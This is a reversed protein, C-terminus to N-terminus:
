AFSDLLMGVVLHWGNVLVFLLLKAPLSVLVPPVTVLGMGAIVSAVVLDIVLFPLYIQFGILFATKLESLLFAPALAQFPVQDYSTIGSSDAGSRELFLWVDDANGTREIQRAMFRHLPAQATTVAEQWSVQKSQYPVLADRHIENWVPTMIAATMFLALGALVQNSPVGQTGIAQRLIALVISIRVFCTTMLLLAPALSLASVLLLTSVTGSVNEPKVWDGFKDIPNPPVVSPDQEDGLATAACCTVIAITGFWGVITSPRFKGPIL